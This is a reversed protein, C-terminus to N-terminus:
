LRTVARYIEAGGGPVNIALKDGVRPEAPLAVHSEVFVAAPSNNVVTASGVRMAGGAPLRVTGARQPGELASRLSQRLATQKPAAPKSPRSM